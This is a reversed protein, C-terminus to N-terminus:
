KEVFVIGFAGGGIHTGITPEIEKMKSCDDLLMRTELESRFNMCNIKDASYIFYAPYTQDIQTKELQELLMRSARKRGISKSVIGVTGEKTLTIVPKINALTGIGAQARTMRGGKYLYELTDVVALVRVKKKLMELQAAIEKAAVGQDRMHCATEVLVQIGATATMSDVLYIEDYEAMEKAIVASQFTGSLASSILVAVVSDGAEKAARFEKLFQEPSPQSTVPIEKKTLLRDYFEERKIEEGDLYVQDGYTLSMPIITCGMKKMEKIECDSGTDTLIRIAM